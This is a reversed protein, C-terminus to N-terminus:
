YIMNYQQQEGTIYCFGITSVKKYWHTGTSYVLLNYQIIAAEGTRYCFGIKSMKKYWHTSISYVFLDYWITAAGATRYCHQVEYDLVLTNIIWIWTCVRNDNMILFLYWVMHDLLFMISVSKIDNIEDDM